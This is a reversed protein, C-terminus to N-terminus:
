SEVSVKKEIERSLLTRPARCALSERYYYFVWIIKMEFLLMSLMNLAKSENRPGISPRGTM